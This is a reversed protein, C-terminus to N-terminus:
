SDWRIAAAVAVFRTTTSAMFKRTCTNSREPCNWYAIPCDAVCDPVINRGLPM